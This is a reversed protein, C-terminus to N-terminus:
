LSDGGNAGLRPVAGSPQSIASFRSGPLVRSPEFKRAISAAPLTQTGFKSPLLTVSNLGMPVRTPLKAGAAASKLSDSLRAISATPLTQTPFKLLLLELTLSNSAPQEVELQVPRLKVGAPALKAEGCPTAISVEPLTQTTFGPLLETVLNVEPPASTPLKVGSPELKSRGCNRAISVAPLTQTVFMMPSLTVSNVELPPRPPLKAGAPAAKSSGPPMAISVAPFKQIGFSTPLVTLSNSAPQEVAAQVPRLKEGAPPLLTGSNVELPPSAPLKAGAPAPKLAGSPKPISAEPLTQIAFAPSPPLLTDSSIPAARGTNVGFTAQRFFAGALATHRGYRSCLAM